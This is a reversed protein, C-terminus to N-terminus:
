SSSLSVKALIQRPHWVVMGGLICLIPWAVFQSQGWQLLPSPVVSCRKNCQGASFYVPVKMVYVWQLAEPLARPFSYCKEPVGGDDLPGYMVCVNQPHPVPHISDGAGFAGATIVLCRRSCGQAMSNSSLKDTRIIFNIELDRQCNGSGWSSLLSSVKQPVVTQSPM